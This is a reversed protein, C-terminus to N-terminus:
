SSLADWHVIEYGGPGATPGIETVVRMDQFVNPFEKKLVKAVMVTVERMEADAHITARKSILERWARFNGTVVVRTETCNPLVSRAAERAQKAELTSASTLQHLLNASEVLEEYLKVDGAFKAAITNEVPTVGRFLPPIVVKMKSAPVYRQSLQSYSHHRHRVLEHTFGRSVGTLYLTAQGHELVSDHGVELIHRLYGENTATAPNPKSWSQYCARGAFEALAQGGFADTSWGTLGESTGGLFFTRAILTVTPEVILSRLDEDLM